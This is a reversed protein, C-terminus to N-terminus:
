VQFRLIAGIGSLNFFQEGEPTETSVIEVEASINKAMEELERILTRDLKKSLILTGVAGLKLVRKVEILGYAALYPTKGLTYFFKELIKKEKIIEQQSLIDQSAVVLDELGSEDTNGIDKVGIVMEKLHTVLQGQELFEEKTPVPGGILIGKLDKMDFFIEKMSNAVRKFFEKALGETIREFRQSSNHVLIGNAFFNKEETELDIMETKESKKIIKGIEMTALKTDYFTLLLDGVVLKKAPVELINKNNEKFFAHEESSIIPWCDQLSIILSKDKVKKWKNLCKTFVIKKDKINCAKIKDGVNIDKISKAGKETEIIMDPSLCQGGARVKGPVGSSMKRMVKIQKGELLGITAERRDMVLLGYIETTKAMEKLPELVFVQDCRYMRTKLQKPPEIIWLQIDDQGEKESVNGCFIAMGNEPTKKYKKLERSIMDLANTVNKRVTKSKINDATSQEAAIQDAITYINAGSPILVTVLETHRGRIKGLKEILDELEDNSIPM